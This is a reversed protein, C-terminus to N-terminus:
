KFAFPNIDALGIKMSTKTSYGSPVFSVSAAYTM